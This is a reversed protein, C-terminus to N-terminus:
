VRFTINVAKWFSLILIRSNWIRLIQFSFVGFISSDPSKSGPPYKVNLFSRGTHFAGELVVWWCICILFLPHFCFISECFCRLM